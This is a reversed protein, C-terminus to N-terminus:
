ISKLLLMSDLSSLPLLLLLPAEEEEVVGGDGAVAFERGKVSGGAGQPMLVVMRTMVDQSM